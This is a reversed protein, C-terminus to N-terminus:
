GSVSPAEKSPEHGFFCQRPTPTTKSTGTRVIPTEPLKPIPPVKHKSPAKEPSSESESLPEIRKRQSQIKKKKPPTERSQQQSCIEQHQSDNEDEDSDLYKQNPRCIFVMIM